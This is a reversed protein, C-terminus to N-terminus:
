RPELTLINRCKRNINTLNRTVLKPRSILSKLFEHSEGGLLLVRYLIASGTVDHNRISIKVIYGRIFQGLTVSFEVSNVTVGTKM